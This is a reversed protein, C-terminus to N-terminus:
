DGPLLDNGKFFDSVALDFPRKHNKAALKEYVARVKPETMAARAYAVAEKFRQRHAKQARSCKVKSMDPAKSLIVDGSHTRRFVYDGLRGRIDELMPHLRVKPM